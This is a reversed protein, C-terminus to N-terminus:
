AVLPEAAAATMAAAAADSETAGAQQPQTTANSSSARPRLGDVLVGDAPYITSYYTIDRAQSRLMLLDPPDDISCPGCWM